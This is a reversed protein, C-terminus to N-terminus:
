NGRTAARARRADAKSKKAAQAARHKARDALGDTYNKVIWEDPWAVLWTLEQLDRVRREWLRVAGLTEDSEDSGYAARAAELQELVWAGTVTFADLGAGKLEDILTKQRHCLVDRQEWQEPTLFPSIEAGGRMLMFIFGAWEHRVGLRDVHGANERYWGHPARTWRIRGNPVVLRGAADPTAGWELLVSEATHPM